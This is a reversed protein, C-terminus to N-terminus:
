KSFLIERTMHVQFENPDTEKTESFKYLCKIEKLGILYLENVFEKPLVM